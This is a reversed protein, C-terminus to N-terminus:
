FKLYIFHKLISKIILESNPKAEYTIPKFDSTQSKALMSIVAKSLQWPECGTKKKYKKYLNSHIKDIL